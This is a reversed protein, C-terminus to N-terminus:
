VQDLGNSTTPTRSNGLEKLRNSLETIRMQGKTNEEIRQLEQAQAAGSDINLFELNKIDTDAGLNSQKSQETNIRAQDLQGSAGQKFTRAKEYEIQIALLELELERRKQELPDPEPSYAEIRKALAPQRKLRAIESLIMQTFGVGLSQATTQLLFTLDQAKQEDSEPTSISIKLDFNGALEDRYVTLYNDNTIRIIEEDSLFKANMAVIKRGIEELGASFRRLIDLERKSSADLASRVGTATNGLASGSIGSSFAKIGTLSEAEANQLGLMFEASAPIEPYKHIHFADEPRGNASNYEYDEGRNFKARNVASLAGALTGIQGNASRAMIDIMGRMVAGSIKQNDELLVADPEGYVSGKVPSYPVAVFPLAKDPYPNEELQIMTSGIYTAVIPTLVGEGEIDWYGWYEYAVVKKRATDKFSFSSLNTRSYDADASANNGEWNVADLNRYNGNAELEARSTEYMYIVFNAKSLDGNCTPDILVNSYDCVEVSPKNEVEVEEVVEEYEGTFTAIIPRGNLRSAELSEGMEPNIRLQSPDEQAVMSIQELLQLEEPSTADRYTFTPVKTTVEATESVWGVRVIATGENVCTRVMDGIFKVKNMKTNFQNNLVISNQYAAKQDEFTVPSIQFLEETSLFPESLSSYRWEAQKRILKPQIASKGPSAKIKPAQLLELWGRIKGIQLDYDSKGETYDQKLDAVTPANAWDQLPEVKSNIIDVDQELGDETM